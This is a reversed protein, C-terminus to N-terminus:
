GDIPAVEHFRSYDISRRGDATWGLIDAFRRNWLIEEPRYSYRAYITQAFTEDIGTLGVVLEARQAVLSEPTAGHLPSREDIRHMVTWTLAFMPTRRRALALDYFRRMRVGDATVEERLLAVNVQAELIQNHRQNAARFM